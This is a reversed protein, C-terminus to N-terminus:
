FTLKVGAYYNRRLAPDIGDTRIRSYYDEDFLNNVGAFVTVHKLVQAEATLDWVSFAAVRDTGVTGPANSDQWFHTDVFTGTLALKARDRDTRATSSL